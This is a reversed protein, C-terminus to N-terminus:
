PRQHIPLSGFRCAMSEHIHEHGSPHLIAALLEIGDILRPGPDANALGHPPITPEVMIPVSRASPPHDCEHSNGVLEDSLGLLAIVETANPLLSCIRM